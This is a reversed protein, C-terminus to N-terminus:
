LREKMFALAEELAEGYKEAGVICGAVGKAPLECKEVLGTHGEAPNSGLVEWHEEAQFSKQKLEDAIHRQMDAFFSQPQPDCGRQHRPGCGRHKERYNGLADHYEQRRKNSEGVYKYIIRSILEVMLYESSALDRSRELRDEPTGAAALIGAKVGGFATKVFLEALKFYSVTALDDLILRRRQHEGTLHDGREILRFGFIYLIHERTQENEPLDLSKLLKIFRKDARCDGIADIVKEYHAMFGGEEINRMLRSSRQEVARMKKVAEGRADKIIHILRGAAAVDMGAHISRSFGEILLKELNVDELGFVESPCHMLIEAATKWTPAVWRTLTPAVWRTLTPAAERHLSVGHEREIYERMYYQLFLANIGGLNEDTLVYKKITESIAEVIPEEYIRPRSRLRERKDRHFVPRGRTRCEGGTKQIVFPACGGADISTRGGADISTRGGADTPTRGGADVSDAGEGIVEFRANAERLLSLPGYLREFQRLGMVPTYVGIPSVQVVMVRPLSGAGGAGGPFLPTEREKLEIITTRPCLGPLLLMKKRKAFSFCRAFYRLYNRTTGAIDAAGSVGSAYLMSNPAPEFLVGLGAMEELIGSIGIVADLRAAAEDEADGGKIGGYVPPPANTAGGGGGDDMAGLYADTLGYIKQWLENLSEEAIKMVPRGYLSWVEPLATFTFAPVVHEDGRSATAAGGGYIFYDTLEFGIDLGAPVTEAITKEIDRAVGQAKLKRMIAAAFIESVPSVLARDRHRRWYRRRAPLGKMFLCFDLARQRDSLSKKHTRGGAGNAAGGGADNDNLLVGYKEILQLLGRKQVDRLFEDFTYGHQMSTIKEAVAGASKLFRRFEEEDLYAPDHLRQSAITDAAKEAAELVALFNELAAEELTEIIYLGDLTKQGMREFHKKTLITADEENEDALLELGSDKKRSMAHAHFSPTTAGGLESSNIFVHFGELLKGLRNRYVNLVSVLVSNCELWSKESMDSVAKTVSEALMFMLDAVYRDTKDVAIVAPTTGHADSLLARVKQLNYFLEERRGHTLPRGVLSYRVLYNVMIHGAGMLEADVTKGEAQLKFSGKLGAIRQELVSRTEPYIRFVDATKKLYNELFAWM